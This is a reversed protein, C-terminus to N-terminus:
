FPRDGSGMCGISEQRHAVLRADQTDGLGAGVEREEGVRCSACARLTVATVVLLQEPRGVREHAGAHVGGRDPLLRIQEGPRDATKGGDPVAMALQEDVEFRSPCNM